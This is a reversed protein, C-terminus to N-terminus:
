SALGSPSSMSISEARGNKALSLVKFQSLRDVIPGHVVEYQGFSCPALM